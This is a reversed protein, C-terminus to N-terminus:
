IRSRTGGCCIHKMPRVKMKTQLLALELQIKKVKGIKLFKMLVSNRMILEQLDHVNLYFFELGYKGDLAMEENMVEPNFAGPFYAYYNPCYSYIDIFGATNYLSDDIIDSMIDNVINFTVAHLENGQQLTSSLPQNM